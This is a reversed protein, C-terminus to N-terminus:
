NRDIDLRYLASKLKEFTASNSFKQPVLTIRPFKGIPSEDVLLTCGYAEELAQFTLVEDPRGMSVIKGKNILLLRDGYMAALNVDHSVMIVTVSKEKKLREMLDMVRVQHALDLSATPEDLLIIESDQCIARAIFVRQREGGSLQDLRRRALHEVGTFAMAHEAIKIDKERELGLLGLYPSRGMLVLESVTFPFDVQVMQPVFAITKALVKRTYSRISQGLIELQGRQPKIIGSITKLLTTKGSGNPGIIIFFDGKQISFSIDKLVPGNGYSYSLNKIDIATSM